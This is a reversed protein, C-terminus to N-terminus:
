IQSLIFQYWDSYINGRLHIGDGTWDSKLVDGFFPTCDMYRLNNETCLDKIYGNYKQVNTNNFRGESSKAQSVPPISILIINSNSNIEYIRNILDQYNGKFNEESYTGLENTGMEVLVTDCSYNALKNYIDGKLSPLSIGVKCLFANNDNSVSELGTVLSNGIFVLGDTKIVSSNNQENDNEINDQGASILNESDVFGEVSAVEDSSDIEFDDAYVDQIFPNSKLASELSKNYEEVKSESQKFLFNEYRVNYVLKIHVIGLVVILFILGILFYLPNISGIQIISAKKVKNSKVKEGKKKVLLGISKTNTQKINDGVETKNGSVNKSNDGFM